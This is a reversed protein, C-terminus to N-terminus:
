GKLVECEWRQGDWSYVLPSWPNNPTVEIYRMTGTVSELLLAIM